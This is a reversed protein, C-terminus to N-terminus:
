KASWVGCEVSEVGCEVCEVGCQLSTVPSIQVTKLRHKRHTDKHMLQRKHVTSWTGESLRYARVICSFFARKGIASTKVRLGLVHICEPEHSGDQKELLHAVRFSIYEFMLHHKHSWVTWVRWQPRTWFQSVYIFPVHFLFTIILCYLIYKSLSVENKRAFLAKVFGSAQPLYDQPESEKTTQRVHMAQVWVGKERTGGGGSLGELVGHELMSPIHRRSCGAHRPPLLKWCGACFKMKCLLSAIGHPTAPEPCVPSVM